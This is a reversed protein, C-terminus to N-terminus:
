IYSSLITIYPMYPDTCLSVERDKEPYLKIYVTSGIQLRHLHVQVEPKMAHYKSCTRLGIALIMPRGDQAAISM